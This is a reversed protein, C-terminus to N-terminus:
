RIDYNLINQMGTKTLIFKYYVNGPRGMFWTPLYFNTITCFKEDYKIKIPELEFLTSNFSWSLHFYNNPKMTAILIYTRKVITSLM